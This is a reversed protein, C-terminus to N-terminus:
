IKNKYVDEAKPIYPNDLAPWTQARYGDLTANLDKDVGKEGLMTYDGFPKPIYPNEMPGSLNGWANGRMQDALDKRLNKGDSVAAVDSYMDGLSKLTPNQGAMTALDPHDGNVTMYTKNFVQWATLGGEVLFKLWDAAAVAVELEPRIEGKLIGVLENLHNATEERVEEDREDVAIEHVQRLAEYLDVYMKMEKHASEDLRPLFEEAIAKFEAYKDKSDETIKKGALTTIKEVKDGYVAHASRLIAESMFACTADDFNTARVTELARKITDALEGETLYLVTPWQGVIKELNEQLASNDSLANSRKLEAIAKCFDVSEGLFKSSGRLVKLETDTTQWNFSLMKAANRASSIPLKVAMVDQRADRSISAEALVPGLERFEAYDYVNECLDNWEKMKKAGSKKAYKAFDKEGKYKLTKGDPGKRLQANRRSVVSSKVSSESRKAKKHRRVIPLNLYSEFHYKAEQEKNSMLADVLLAISERSKAKETETDISLQEINEVTLQQDEIKYQGHIYTGDLSEYLANEQGFSLLELGELELAKSLIPAAEVLEKEAASLSDNQISEFVDYSILKRKM